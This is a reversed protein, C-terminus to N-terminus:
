TVEEVSWVMGEERKRKREENRRAKEKEGVKNQVEMEQQM